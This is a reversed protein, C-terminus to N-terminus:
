AAEERRGFKPDLNQRVIWTVVFSPITAIIIWEFFGTYGLAELAYGAFSGPVILGLSMFGTCIAYFSTQHAGRSIYLMYLMYGTFGLGYGFKEIIVAISVWILSTPQFYALGLFAVNTLNMMIAMPMLWVRLGHRAALMGGLIGGALLAGVGFTGNILGVQDELLGLGGVSRSDLLFKGIFKVVQAEAFRYLLLFPLATAIPILEFYQKFTSAVESMVQLVTVDKTAFEKPATQPLMIAHYTAMLFFTLAAAGHTIGWAWAADYGARILWGALMVLIGEGFIWGGRFAVSRIGAFWTQDHAPLARMYFGDAAIDHTASVLALLAYAAMTWVVYHERTYGFGIAAFAFSALFETTWIWRRETGILEVLPSWLPKLTWPLGLWSTYGIVVASVGLRTYPYTLVNMVLVYPLAQAFYLSPVWWWPRRDKPAAQEGIAPEDPM